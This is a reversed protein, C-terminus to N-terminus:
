HRFTRLYVRGKSANRFCSVHPGGMFVPIGLKRIQRAMEYARPATSTITSIGVADADFVMDWDIGKIDEIFVSVEYGANELITGLQITGLRPLGWKRYVHAGPSKPEIFVIKRILKNAM